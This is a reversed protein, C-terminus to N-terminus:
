AGGRWRGSRRLEREVERPMYREDHKALVSEAVFVGSPAFAGQAVVGQGERFLDPLDGQHSVTRTAAGDTVVFEVREPGVRVLSGAEVLGGLKIARGPAAREPTLQSPTYFFVVADGMANVALAASLALVPAAALVLTLRRKARRSTPWLRMGALYDQRSRM